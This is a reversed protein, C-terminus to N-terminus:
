FFTAFITWHPSGIVSLRKGGLWFQTLGGIKRNKAQSDQERPDFRLIPPRVGM